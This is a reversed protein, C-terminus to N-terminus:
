QPNRVGSGELPKRIATARRSRAVGSGANKMKERRCTHDGFAKGLGEEREESVSMDMEM